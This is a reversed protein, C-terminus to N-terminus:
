KPKNIKNMETLNNKATQISKSFIAILEDTERIASDIGAVPDTSYKRQIIRLCTYSERLEKLVIKVKHIFDNQSESSIAESYNLATSSSSRTLQGSLQKMLLTQPLKNIVADVKMVYDILREQLDFKKM